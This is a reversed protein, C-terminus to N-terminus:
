RYRADRAHANAATAPVRHADPDISLRERSSLEGDRVDFICQSALIDFQGCPTQFRSGAFKGQAREDPEVAFLIEAIEHQAAAIVAM